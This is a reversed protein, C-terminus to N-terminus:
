IPFFVVGDIYANRIKQANSIYIYVYLDPIFDNPIVMALSLLQDVVYNQWHFTFHIHFGASLAPHETTAPSNWFNM